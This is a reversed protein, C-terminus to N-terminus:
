SQTSIMAWKWCPRYCGSFYATALGAIRIAKPNRQSTGFDKEMAKAM